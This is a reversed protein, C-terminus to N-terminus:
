LAGLTPVIEDEISLRGLRDYIRLDAGPVIAATYEAHVVTTIVDASGHLVIFPCVIAAVDFDVWGPGDAIRDDAYGELGHAFMLPVAEMWARGWPSTLMSQDSASLPPGENSSVIKSGDIGHAEAAAAIVADRNPADWVARAHPRSMM